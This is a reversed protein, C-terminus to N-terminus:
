NYLEKPFLFIIIKLNSEAYEQLRQGAISACAKGTKPSKKIKGTAPGASEKTPM